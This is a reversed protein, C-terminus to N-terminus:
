FEEMIDYSHAAISNATLQPANIFNEYSEDFIEANESDSTDVTYDCDYKTCNGDTLRIAAEYLDYYISYAYNSAYNNAAISNMENLQQIYSNASEPLEIELGEGGIGDSYEAIEENSLHDTKVIEDLTPAPHEALFILFDLDYGQELAFDSNLEAFNAFENKSQFDQYLAKARNLYNLTIDLDDQNIVNEIYYTATEDFNPLPQDSEKGIILYNFFIRASKEADNAPASQSNSVVALIILVVSVILIVAAAAIIGILLPKRSSQSKQQPSAQQVEKVFNEEFEAM